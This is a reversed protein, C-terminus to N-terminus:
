LRWLSALGASVKIESTQGGFCCSFLNRNIVAALPVSVLVLLWQMSASKYSSWLVSHAQDESSCAWATDCDISVKLRLLKDVTFCSTFLSTLNFRVEDSWSAWVSDMRGHQVSLWKLWTWSKSVGCIAAQWNGRDMPNELCSYQLPNSHGGGPSRGSGPISSVDIIDGASAPPTKVVIAM